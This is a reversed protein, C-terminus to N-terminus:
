VKRSFRNYYQYFETISPIKIVKGAIIEEVPDLIENHLAILWGLDYTGFYKFSILDIRRETVNDVRHFASTDLEMGYISTKLYDLERNGSEETIQFFFQRETISM